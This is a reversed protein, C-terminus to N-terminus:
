RESVLHDVAQLEFYKLQPGDAELQFAKTYKMGIAQIVHISALNDPRVIAAVREIALRQFSDDLISRCAETVFGRGQFDTRMAFGVDPITLEPRRVLGCLGICSSDDTDIAYLGFGHNQYHPLMVDQIDKEVQEVTRLGKDRINIIFDQQNYLKLLAPADSHAVQRLTLRNTKLPELM